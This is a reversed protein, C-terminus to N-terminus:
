AKQMGNQATRDAEKVSRGGTPNHVTERLIQTSYISRNWKINFHREKRDRRQEACQGGDSITSM